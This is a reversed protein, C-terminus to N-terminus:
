RSKVQNTTTEMPGSLVLEGPITALDISWVDSTLNQRALVEGTIANLRLLNVSTWNTDRV